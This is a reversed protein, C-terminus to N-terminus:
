RTPVKTDEPQIIDTQGIYIDQLHGKISVEAPEIHGLGYRRKLAAQWDSSGLNASVNNRVLATNTFWPCIGVMRVKERNMMAAKIPCHRSVKQQEIKNKYLRRKRYSLNLPM